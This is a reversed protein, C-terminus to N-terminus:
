SVGSLIARYRRDIPSIRLCPAQWIRDPRDAKQSRETLSVYRDTWSCVRPRSGHGMLWCRCARGAPKAWPWPMPPMSRRRRACRRSAMSCCAISCCRGSAPRPWPRWARASPPDRPHDRCRSLRRGHHRCFGPHREEGGSVAARRSVGPPFRARSNELGYAVERRLATFGALEPIGGALLAEEVLRNARATNICALRGHDTEVLEWTGPLKRKPGSARSFWVRAGAPQCHLMSGTNPCHLTLVEGSATEIDALFRKYRRLLRGEELPPDFRVPGELAAPGPRDPRRGRGPAAAVPHLRLACPHRCPPSRLGPRPHHGRTRDGAPVPLLCLRRALPPSTPMSISPARLSSPSKSAWAVCRRCCTTAVAPSNPAGIKSSPWPRQPLVPWPRRSRWPPPASTSIRRWNKWSRCLPPRAVLWGLRWGTM